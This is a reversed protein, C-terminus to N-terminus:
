DLAAAWHITRSDCRGRHYRVSGSARSRSTFRGSIAIWVAGRRGQFGFAGTRSIRMNYVPAPGCAIGAFFSSVFHGSPDVKFTVACSSGSCGGYWGPAPQAAGIAVPAYQFVSLAILGALWLRRIASREVATAFNPRIEPM